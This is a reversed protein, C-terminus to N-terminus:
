VTVAAGVGAQTLSFPVVLFVKPAPTVHAQPVPVSHVPLLQHSLLTVLLEGALPLHSLFLKQEATVSEVVPNVVALQKHACVDFVAPGYVIQEALWVHSAAVSVQVSWPQHEFVSWDSAFLTDQLHEAVASDSAGVQGFAL